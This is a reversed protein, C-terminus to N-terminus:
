YNLGCFPCVRQGLGRFSNYHDLLSKGAAKEFSKSELTQDYLFNFLDCLAQILKKAKFGM